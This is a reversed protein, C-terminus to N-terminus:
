AAKKLGEIYLENNKGDALELQVLSLEGRKVARALRLLKETEHQTLEDSPLDYVIPRDGTQNASDIM